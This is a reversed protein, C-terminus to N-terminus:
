GHQTVPLSHHEIVELVLEIHRQVKSMLPPPLVFGFL